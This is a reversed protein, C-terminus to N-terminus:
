VAAARTRYWTVHHSIQPRCFLVQAPKIWTNRNGRGIRMGNVAGYDNILTDSHLKSISLTTLCWLCSLLYLLRSLATPIAVPQPSSSQSTPTRIGTPDLIIVEGNRVSRSQPGGLRRYLPYRPSRGRPYLPRPTFSVL